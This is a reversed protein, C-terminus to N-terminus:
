SDSSNMRLRDLVRRRVNTSLRPNSDLVRTLLEALFETTYQPSSADVAQFTAALNSISDSAGSTVQSYVDQLQLFFWLVNPRSLFLILTICHPYIVFHFTQTYPRVFKM